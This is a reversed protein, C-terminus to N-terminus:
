RHEGKCKMYHTPAAALVSTSCFRQVFLIVKGCPSGKAKMDECGRKWLLYRALLEDPAYQRDLDTKNGAEASAETGM